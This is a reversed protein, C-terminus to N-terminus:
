PDEKQINLLDKSGTNFEPWELKGSTKLGFNGLYESAM